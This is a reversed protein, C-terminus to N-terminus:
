EQKGECLTQKIAEQMADEDSDNGDSEDCPIMKGLHEGVRFHEIGDEEDESERDDLDSTESDSGGPTFICQVADAKGFRIKGRKEM